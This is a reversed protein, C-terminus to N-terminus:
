MVSFSTRSVDTNGKEQRKMRYQEWHPLYRELTFQHCTISSGAQVVARALCGLTRAIRRGEEKTTNDWPSSIDARDFLLQVADDEELGTLKLSGVTAHTRFKSNRTTILIHGNGGTPFLKELELQPDDANDFILLWPENPHGYNSLWDKGQEVTAHTSLGADKGISALSASALEQSAATV